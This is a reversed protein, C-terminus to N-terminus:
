LGKSEALARGLTVAWGGGLIIMASVIFYKIIQPAKVRGLIGFDVGFVAVLLAFVAVMAFLCCFVAAAPQIYFSELIRGKVFAEASTTIYCGPCPLGYAQKFGCVGFIGTIDILDRLEVNQVRIQPIERVHQIYLTIVAVPM